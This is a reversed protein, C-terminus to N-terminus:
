FAVIGQTNIEPLDRLIQIETLGSGNGEDEIKYVGIAGSLGFLQYLYEGDASSWLDIFGDTTAFAAEPSSNPAAATTWGM